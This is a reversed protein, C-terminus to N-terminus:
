IKAYYEGRRLKSQLMEYYSRSNVKVFKARFPARGIRVIDDPQLNYVKQGDVTLTIDDHTAQIDIKIKENESIILPRANLTHPCIPTVVFVRLNPNVIPGGASLSYGTSGTSTAIIVGDSPYQATLVDEVYLKIKILRSFGGKSIVVDNLAHSTYKTQSNRKVEVLLMTRESITYQQAIVKDLCGKLEPIEIETLFGLQGMNIGCLPISQPSVIRATNLLTGDGGLTLAVDLGQISHTLFPAFEEYERDYKEGVPIVVRVNKEKMYQIIWGLVTQVSPKKINPFIGITLM